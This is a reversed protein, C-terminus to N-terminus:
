QAVASRSRILAIIMRSSKFLHRIYCDMIEQMLNWFNPLFFQQVGDVVRLNSSGQNIFASRESQQDVKPNKLQRRLIKLEFLEVRNKQRSCSTQLLFAPLLKLM